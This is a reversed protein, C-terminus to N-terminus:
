KLDIIKTKTVEKSARRLLAFVGLGAFLLGLLVDTITATLYESDQVLLQFIIRPIDGMTCGILEGSKIFGALTIVDAAFTGLLVGLVIAVILIAIKGKSQKGHLLNYGKEALWGILLGVISAFYGFYLVVAWVISGLLAGLVAGITGKLYTGTDEQEKTQAEQEINRCIEDACNEHMHYAVGDILKWCGGELRGGCESCTNVDSAGYTPLMPMFWDLFAEIKKITGPNDFFSILIGDPAFNLTQVRFEKTINRQNIQEQLQNLLMPDSFKTTLVIQKNGTGGSLTAAYGRLNGYAVGNSVMMGNERAMKKLGSGIM